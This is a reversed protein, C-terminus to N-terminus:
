LAGNAASAAAGTEIAVRALVGSTLTLSGGDRVHPHGSLVLGIQGLAKNELGARYDQPTLELATSVAGGILGSAGVVLVRKTTM